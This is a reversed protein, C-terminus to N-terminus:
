RDTCGKWWGMPRPTSPQLLPTSCGTSAAGTLGCPLPSSCGRDSTNNAPVGYCAVWTAVFANLVAETTTERLLVAEPPRASKEDGVNECGVNEDGVNEDGVNEDGSCKEDGVNEDGM